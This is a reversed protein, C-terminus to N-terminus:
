LKNIKNEKLSIISQLLVSTMVLGLGIYFSFNVSHGEDFFLFALILSINILHTALKKM